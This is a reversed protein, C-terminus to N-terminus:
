RRARQNKGVLMEFVICGLTWWDIASDYQKGHIMEPALYEPTGCM